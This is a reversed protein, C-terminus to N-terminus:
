TRSTGETKMSGQGGDRKRFQGRECVVASQVDFGEADSEQEDWIGTRCARDFAGNKGLRRTYYSFFAVQQGLELDLFEVAKCKSNCWVPGRTLLWQQTVDLKKNMAPDNELVTNFRYSMTSTGAILKDFETQYRPVKSLATSATSVVSTIIKKSM